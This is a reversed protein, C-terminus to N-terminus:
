AGGRVSGASNALHHHIRHAIVETDTESDFKYGLEMLGARLAEHNEIIGNHVIAIGDRSVHPHANRPPRFATPRGARIRLAWTGRLPTARPGGRADKGQGVRACPAGAGIRAWFRSAPRTTAGTNSGDCGRWSSPSQM